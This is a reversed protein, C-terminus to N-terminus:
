ASERESKGVLAEVQKKKLGNPVDHGCVRCTARVHLEAHLVQWSVGM